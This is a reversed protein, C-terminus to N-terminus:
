SNRACLLSLPYCPNQALTGLCFCRPSAHVADAGKVPLQAVVARCTDKRLRLFFVPVPWPQLSLGGAGALGAFVFCLGYTNIQPGALAQTWWVGGGGWRSGTRRKASTRQLSCRPRCTWRPARPCMRSHKQVHRPKFPLWPCFRDRMHKVHSMGTRPIAPLARFITFSAKLTEKLINIKSVWGM